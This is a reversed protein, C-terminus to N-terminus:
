TWFYNKFFVYTKGTGTEMEISFNLGELEKSQKLGNKLQIQRLNDLISINNDLRNAIGLRNLNKGVMEQKISFSSLCDEQGKFIDVVSNIADLQYDLNPNFRIKM